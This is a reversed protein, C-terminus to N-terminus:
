PIRVTLRIFATQISKSSESPRKHSYFYDRTITAHCAYKERRDRKVYLYAAVLIPAAVEPM